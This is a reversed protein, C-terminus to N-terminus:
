RRSPNQLSDVEKSSNIVLHLQNPLVYKSLEQAIFEAVKDYAQNCSKIKLDGWDLDSCLLNNRVDRIEICHIQIVGDTPKDKKRFFGKKVLIHQAFEVKIWVSDVYSGNVYEGNWDVFGDPIFKDKAEILIQFLIGRKAEASLSIQM